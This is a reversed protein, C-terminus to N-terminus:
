RRITLFAFPAPEIREEVPGRDLDLYEVETDFSLGAGLEVRSGAFPGFRWRAILQWESLYTKGEVTETTDLTAWKDGYREVGVRWRGGADRWHVGVPLDLVVETGGAPLTVAYRPYLHFGGFRYDGALGVAGPIGDVPYLLDLRGTLAESRFEAHTFINSSGHVGLAADVQLAGLEGAHEFDVRHLYGNTGPNGARILLPQALYSVGTRGRDHEDHWGLGLAQREVGDAPEGPLEVDAAHWHRLHLSWEGAQAPAALLVALAPLHWRMTTM